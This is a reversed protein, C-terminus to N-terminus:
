AGALLPDLLLEGGRAHEDVGARLHDLLHQVPQLAPELLQIADLGARVRKRLAVPANEYLGGRQLSSRLSEEVGLAATCERCGELHREFEAARAADLEDDLYGDLVTRTFECSM